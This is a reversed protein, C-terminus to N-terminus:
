GKGGGNGGSTGAPKEAVADAAVAVTTPKMFFKTSITFLNSTLWYLVLGSPMTFFIVTMMVPMMYMMMKQNPDVMTQKSQLFSTFGMILPLVCFGSGIFPLSFPLNFIVDPQSLDTVWFLFPEQRLEITHFLVAYLAFFIPMQVLIPLCGALPNVGAEKYLRMTAESLKTQDDKHKEKLADLQPKLESMARMSKTSKFTLPFFLLNMAASFLIITFGYNPIVHHLSILLSLILRSLPQIWSAGLDVTREIGLDLAKLGAYDLPGIYVDYAVTDAALGQSREALIEAAMAAEDEQGPVRWLRAPGQGEERPVIAGLFYTNQVSVFFTHGPFELPGKRAANADKRQLEGEAMATASFYSGRSSGLKEETRRMGGAWSLGWVSLGARDRLLQHEVQILYGDNPVQFTKQLTLEELALEWTIRRGAPGRTDSVLDFEFQDLPYTQEGKGVISALAGAGGQPILQVAGHGAEDFGPLEARVLRAGRSDFTLNMSETSVVLERRVVPTDKATATLDIGNEDTIGLLSGAPHSAATEGPSMGRNPTASMTGASDNEAPSIAGAPADGNGAVPASPQSTPFFYSWAFLVAMALLIAMFARHEQGTNDRM